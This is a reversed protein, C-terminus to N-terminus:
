LTGRLDKLFAILRGKFGPVQSPNGLSQDERWRRWAELDRAPEDLVEIDEVQGPDGQEPRSM